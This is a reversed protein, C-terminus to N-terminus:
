QRDHVDPGHGGHPRHGSRCSARPSIEGKFHLFKTTALDDIVKVPLEAAPWDGDNPEGILLMTPM